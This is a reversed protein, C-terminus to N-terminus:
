DTPDSISARFADRNEETMRWFGASPLAVKKQRCFSRVATDSVGFLASLEVMSKRWVLDSLKEPTMMKWSMKVSSPTYTSASATVEHVKEWTPHYSQSAQEFLIQVPAFDRLSRAVDRGVKRGIMGPDIIITNGQDRDELIGGPLTTSTKAAWGAPHSNIGLDAILGSSIEHLAAGRFTGRSIGSHIAALALIQLDKNGDARSPNVHEILDLTQRLGPVRRNLRALRPLPGRVVPIDGMRLFARPVWLPLSRPAGPDNPGGKRGYLKARILGQSPPPLNDKDQSYGAAFGIFFDKRASSM